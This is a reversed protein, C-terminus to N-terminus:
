RPPRGESGGTEGFVYRLLAVRLLLASSGVVVRPLAPRRQNPPPPPIQVRPKRRALLSRNVATGVQTKGARDSGDPSLLANQWLAERAVAGLAFPLERRRGEYGASM